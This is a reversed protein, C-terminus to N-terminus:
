DLIPLRLTASTATVDEPFTYTSLGVISVEDNNISSDQNLDNWEYVFTEVPINALSAANTSMFFIISDIKYGFGYPINLVTLFEIDGGGSITRSITSRPNGTAPNWSAKSYLNESLTFSSTVQNDTDVDDTSDSAVSYTVTYVGEGTSFPDFEPLLVLEGTSDPLIEADSSGSENYVETAMGGFPAYSITANVQLNPAANLGANLVSSGPTFVFEGAAKIQSSPIIGLPANMIDAPRVRLDNNFILAGISINVPGMELAARIAQGAEYSIMVCPITVQGGVAGPGMGAAGAGPTNNVVIAAIAGAQEANLCKVGFECSGRDILAIKGELETANVAANCGQNPNASGDDVFAADATWIDTTIDAGFSATGYAYAGKLSEPSNIYVTQAPLSVAVFLLAIILSTFTRM